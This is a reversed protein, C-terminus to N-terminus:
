STLLEAMSLVMFALFVVIRRVSESLPHCELWHFTKVIPNRTAQQNAKDAAELVHEIFVSKFVETISLGRTLVALVGLVLRTALNFTNLLLSPFRIAVISLHTILKLRQMVTSFQILEFLALLGIIYQGIKLLKNLQSIHLSLPQYHVALNGSWWHKLYEEM